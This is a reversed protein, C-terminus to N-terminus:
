RKDFLYNFIFYKFLFNLIRSFIHHTRVYPCMVVRWTDSVGLRKHDTILPLDLHNIKEESLTFTSYQQFAKLCKDWYELTCQIVAGHEHFLEDGTVLVVIYISLFSLKTLTWQPLIKFGLLAVCVWEIKTFSKPLRKVEGLTCTKLLFWSLTRDM